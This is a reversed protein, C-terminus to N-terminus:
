AAAGTAAQDGGMAARTEELYAALDKETQAAAKGRLERDRLLVVSGTILPVTAMTVPIVWAWSGDGALYTEVFRRIQPNHQAATNWAPALEPLQARFLAATPKTPGAAALGLWLLTGAGILDETYDKVVRGTIPEAPPESVRAAGPDDKPTKGARGPGPRTRRPSGDEKLGYKPTGDDNLWPERPPAAAAAADHQAADQDLAAALQADPAPVLGPDVRVTPETV